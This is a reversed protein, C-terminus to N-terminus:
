KCMHWPLCAHVDATMFACVYTIYLSVCLRFTVIDYALSLMSFLSFHDGLSADRKLIYNLIVSGLKM